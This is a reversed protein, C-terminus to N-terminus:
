EALWAVVAIATVWFLLLIRANARDGRVNNSYLFWVIGVAPLALFEALTLAIAIASRQGADGGLALYPGVFLAIMLIVSYVGGFVYNVALLAGRAFIKATEMTACHVCGLMDAVPAAAAM